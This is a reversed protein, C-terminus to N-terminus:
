NMVNGDSASQVWHTAYQLLEIANDLKLKRKINARHTEVTKTSVHLKDAIDRTQLGHGVMEFVELERDSLCEVASGDSSPEGNIARSLIRTSMKESLHIKGRLVRRIAEIVRETAEEKMIYGRAGARLVREAYLSEEHMSLVLIPVDGCQSRIDRILSIGNTDGLSLDLLIVDPEEESVVKLAAHASGAEGCVFLDPEQNILQALGRRVVPHDDVIIVKAQNPAKFVDAM